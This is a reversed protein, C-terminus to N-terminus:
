LKRKYVSKVALHNKKYSALMLESHETSKYKVKREESWYYKDDLWKEMDERKRKLM